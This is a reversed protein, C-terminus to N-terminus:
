LPAVDVEKLPKGGALTTWILRKDAIAQYEGLFLGDTYPLLESRLLVKYLDIM